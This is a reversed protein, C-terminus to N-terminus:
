ALSCLWPRSRRAASHRCANRARARPELRCRSSCGDGDVTNGDDCEQGDQALGDGCAALRASISLRYGFVATADFPSSFGIIGLKRCRDFIPGHWEWPTHAERYLEYLSKGQWLSHPDGVSFEGGRLDLTMTDATYTQIKLAHAGADAAADVIALARELSQNHNGSMEAVVLPPRAAGVERDGIRITSSRSKSM